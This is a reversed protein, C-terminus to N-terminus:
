KAVNALHKLWVHFFRTMVSGTGDLEALVSDGNPVMLCNTPRTDKMKRQCLLLCVGTQDKIMSISIQMLVLLGVHECRGSFLLDFKCILDSCQCLRQM